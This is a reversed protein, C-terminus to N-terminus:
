GWNVNDNRTIYSGISYLGIARRREWVSRRKLPVAVNPRNSGTNSQLDDNFTVIHQTNSKCNENSCYLTNVTKIVDQARANLNLNQRQPLRSLCDKLTGTIIQRRLNTIEKACYCFWQEARRWPDRCEVSLNSTCNSCNKQQRKIRPHRFFQQSVGTQSTSATQDRALCQSVKLKITATPCLPSHIQRHLQSAEVSFCVSGLIQVRKLKSHDGTVNYM